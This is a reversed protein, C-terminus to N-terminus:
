HVQTVVACVEKEVNQHTDRPTNYALVLVNVPNAPTNDTEEISSLDITKTPTQLTTIPLEDHILVTGRDDDAGAGRADVDSFDSVPIEETSNVRDYAPNLVEALLLRRKLCFFAVLRLGNLIVKTAHPGAKISGGSENPKQGSDQPVALSAQMFKLGEEEIFQPPVTGIFTILSSV